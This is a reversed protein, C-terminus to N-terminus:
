EETLPKKLTLFHLDPVKLMEPWVFPIREGTEVFGIKKYWALIEVRSELVHIVATDFGKEKMTKFAHRVLRGGVGKSQYQPSVSFLGIEAENPAEPIPQIQLTGIVQAPQTSRDFAYLLPKNATDKVYANIDELTVREGLVLAEETTWGGSSRYAKNVVSHVAESLKLDDLTSERVYLLEQQVM